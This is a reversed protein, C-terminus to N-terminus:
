QKQISAPRTAAKLTGTTTSSRRVPEGTKEPGTITVVPAGSAGRELLFHTGANPEYTSTVSPLDFTVKNPTCATHTVLTSAPITHTEGGLVYNVSAGARNEIEFTYKMSEPRGFLQVSIFKPDREPGRAIGVGIEVVHPQLMAARHSPSNKWGNIADSALERTKFGSSRQNLALNEAVICFRYGAARAREAPKRGDAEHAFKSTRALYNAFAQAAAALTANGTLAPLKNEIRFENTMEVIAAETRPLDPLDM